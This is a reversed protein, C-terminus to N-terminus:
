SIADEFHEIHYQQNKKLLALIDFRIETEPPLTECFQEAAEHLREIKADDVFDEPEGFSNSSRMKVEVFVITDSKKVILDIESRKYRYNKAVLQYGKSELYHWAIDEGHKGSETTTM